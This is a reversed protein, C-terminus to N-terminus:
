KKIFLGECRNLILRGTGEACCVEVDWVVGRCIFSWVVVWCPGALGSTVPVACRGASRTPGARRDM